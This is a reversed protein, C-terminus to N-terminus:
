DRNTEDTLDPIIENLHCSVCFSEEVSANPVMWNCVKEQSYNQCKKYLKDETESSPRWLGDSAPELSTLCLSDALFGLERGCNVCAVNHFFIMQGCVCSYTKM